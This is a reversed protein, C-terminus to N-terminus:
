GAARRLAYGASGRGDDTRAIEQVPLELTFCTGQGLASSVSIRGNMLRVLQRAIALGLGSGGRRAATGQRAQGYKQFIRGLDAAAIGIGSDAVEVVLEDAMLARQAHARLRVFGSDTFKVANGVLNLLVQRLRLADGAIWRPVHRDIECSLSIGKERARPQFLAVAYELEAHLDVEDRALELRGAELRSFDLIDNLLRVMTQGSEAIHDVNRRQEASLEGQKLLDTFGLVGNMPTRIDHSMSALLDARAEAKSRMDRLLRTVVVVMALSGISFLGLAALPDPFLMFPGRGALTVALAQPLVCALILIGAPLGQRLSTLAMLPLLVFILAPHGAWFITFALGGALMAHALTERAIMRAAHLLNWWRERALM